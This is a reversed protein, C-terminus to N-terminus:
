KEIVFKQTFNKNASQFKIFYVGNTQASLDFSIKSNNNINQNNLKAITQGLINEVSITANTANLDAFSINVVGTSPNPYISFNYDNIADAVGNLCGTADVNVTQKKFASGGQNWVDLRVQMYGGKNYTHTPNKLTSAVSGDGFAWSWQIPSNTSLDTFTYVCGNNAVGIKAVPALIGAVTGCVDATTAASMFSNADVELYKIYNNSIPDGNTLNTGPELDEQWTIYVNNDVGRAMSPYVDEYGPTKTINIPMSWTNGAGTAFASDYHSGTADEKLFMMLLDRYNQGHPTNNV